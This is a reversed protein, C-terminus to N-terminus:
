LHAHPSTGPHTPLGFICKFFFFRFFGAVGPTGASKKDKKKYFHESKVSTQQLNVPYRPSQYYTTSFTNSSLNVYFINYFM